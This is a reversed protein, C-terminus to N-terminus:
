ITYNVTLWYGRSNLPYDGAIQGDSAEFADADFINKATVQASWENTIKYTVSINTWNYNKIDERFDSTLRKRDMIWRTDLHLGLKENITWNVNVDFVQGPADAISEKSHKDESKQWAYGTKIHLSDSPKWHAEFEAGYGDQNGSNQAINTGDGQPIWDILNESQYYFLNAMLQWDFNPRYDFAIETTQIKEPNLDTNGLVVPNNIAYLEQFSPARFAEGYLLKTTLNHQTQWVLALRPNFTGGFDSYNDYRVGATLEWDSALEWEDQLSFFYLERSQDLMYIYPTGRVSTLTGDKFDETGNLVGPGFNKLEDQKAKSHRYGIETRINHQEIGSYQAVLNTGFYKEHAIPQGILGDIFVTFASPAGQDNFARPLAMGPPYIVFYTDDDYTQYHASLKMTLASDIDWKYGTSLTISKTKEIDSTSLAQAAGAGTSGKNELYWANAYFGQYSLQAHIDLSESKTDLAGPANSLFGLGFGHMADTQVIRDPDGDTKTWQANLSYKFPQNSNVYNIWSSKTNFSGTKVGVETNSLSNVGQTIINIVGSFADAGYVASGPGRIVEIREILDVGVNFQEWRSGTYEYTTKEGNVLVLTQPNEPTHIGRISFNPKMRDLNSPYIHIGTVNELIEYVSNAGMMKIADATIVTTVAPAKHIAKKTGTAISVFDEDGYFDELSDDSNEYDGDYEEDFNMLHSNPLLHNALLEPSTIACAAIISLTLFNRTFFM